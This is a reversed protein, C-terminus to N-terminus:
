PATQPSTQAWRAQSTGISRGVYFAAFFLAFVVLITVVAQQQTLVRRRSSQRMDAKEM